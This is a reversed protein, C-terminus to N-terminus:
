AGAARRNWPMAQLLNAMGCWGTIGAQMLGAGVFGSLLFFWPSVLYGLAVGLVVFGGAVIQVQRMVPLPQGTDVDVPLGAKRWADLGGEVMYADWGATAKLRDAHDATRAGSRCHFIVARGAAVAPTEGKRISSLPHLRAGPIKERAHEDPERIDVLVAGEDMLRRAEVPTISELSM